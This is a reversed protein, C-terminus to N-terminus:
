PQCSWQALPTAVEDGGRAVEDKISTIEDRVGNSVGVHAGNCWQRRIWTLRWTFEVGYERKNTKKNKNRM